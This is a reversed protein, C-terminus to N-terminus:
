ITKGGTANVWAKFASVSDEVPQEELVETRILKFDEVKCSGGVSMRVSLANLTDYFDFVQRQQSRRSDLLVSFEAPTMAEFEQPTLGCEGFAIPESEDM